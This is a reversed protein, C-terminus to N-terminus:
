EESLFEKSCRVAKRRFYMKVAYEFPVETLRIM